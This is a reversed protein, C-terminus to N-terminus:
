SIMSESAVIICCDFYDKYDDYSNSRTQIIVHMGTHAKDGIESLARFEKDFMKRFYVIHFM